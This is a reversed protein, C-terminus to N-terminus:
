PVGYRDTGLDSKLYNLNERIYKVEVIQVRNHLFSGVLDHCNEKIRYKNLEPLVLDHNVSDFAKSLDLFAAGVREGCDLRDIIKYVKSTILRDKRSLAM